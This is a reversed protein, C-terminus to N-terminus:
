KRELILLSNGKRKERKKVTLRNQNQLATITRTIATSSASLLAKGGPILEEAIRSIGANIAKVGEDEKITGIVLDASQPNDTSIGTRHSIRIRDKPCDNIIINSETVRLSLLDRDVMSISGPSLMKWAAIAVHGQGPNFCLIRNPSNNKLDYIAEILLQSLRDPSETEPLDYVTNIQYSLDLFSVERRDKLYIGRDFGGTVPRLSEGTNDTFRYIFVAHGSRNKHLLIEVSTMSELLSKVAEELPTVVVIAVLGGTKLYGAATTLFDSIVPEGAKGPINSIILDFDSASVDDFGLSSYIEVGQIGNVEANQRSYEVALADRDVLHATCDPNLKMLTLGIPGYGCGLDLIRSFRDTGFESILTRLLFQTGTDVQFSSFLDQSVRFRMEQRHYRFTLEKKFYVDENM